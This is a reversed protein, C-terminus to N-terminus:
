RQENLDLFSQADDLSSEVLTALHSVQSQSFCEDGVYAEEIHKAYDYVTMMGMNGSSGKIAHVLFKIREDDGQKFAAQLNSPFAQNNERYLSLLKLYAHPKRAISPKKNEFDITELQEPILLTNVKTKSTGSTAGSKDENRNHSSRTASLEGSAASAESLPENKKPKSQENKDPLDAMDGMWEKITDIMRRADLPKSLYADMGAALCKEQDGQMANATMAIIPIKRYNESAVGSRICRSAEYGDMEPMQCDMLILTYPADDPSSKLSEIAELGNGAIDCDLGVENLLEQAVYQNVQNDEVLLIRTDDPWHYHNEADINKDEQLGLLRTKTLLTNDERSFEGDGACIALADFLDSTSVPKTFYAAFGVRHLEPLDDLALSSMMLLKIDDFRTDQRIERALAVGDKEPMSRDLLVLDFPQVALSEEMVVLAREACDAEVVDVGWQTLQANFIDRNTKNDDVVLIKLRSVDARPAVRSSNQSAKLRIDFSFNSGEGLRSEVYVGGGMLEALKKCIALGLGTGGFKRTVSSDVQTFSEFLQDVKDEPIGIGSDIVECKLSFSAETIKVLAARLLIEGNSTFKIANGILNILIQRLRSPDGLVRSEVIGRVDLNFELGKEYAKYSMTQAIDELQERLNFDVEELDLKGAEVKSFDLIDNILALLAQASNKAVSLKKVQDENLTTKALLGLMGLVGNM